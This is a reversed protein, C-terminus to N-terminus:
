VFNSGSPLQNNIIVVEDEETIGYMASLFFASIADRSICIICIGQQENCIGHPPDYRSFKPLPTQSSGHQKLLLWGNAKALLRTSPSLM